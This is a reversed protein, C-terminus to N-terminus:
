NLVVTNGKLEYELNYIRSLTEAITVIPTEPPFVASFEIDKLATSDYLLEVGYLQNLRFAIEMPNSRQFVLMGESWGGIYKGDVKRLEMVDRAYDFLASNNPELVIQNKDSRAVQVRGTKVSIQQNNLEAYAQINFSTGLVRTSVGNVTHVIFPRNEDKAVEFFVEGEDLWVERSETHYKVDRIRISTNTNLYVTSGDVLSIKKMKDTSYIEVYDVLDTDAVPSLSNKINPINLMFVILVAAVIGITSGVIWLLRSKNHKQKSCDNQLIYSVESCLKEKMEDDVLPDSVNEIAQWLTKTVLSVEVDGADCHLLKFLENKEEDSCEDNIYKKLLSITRLSYTEINEMLLSKKKIDVCM